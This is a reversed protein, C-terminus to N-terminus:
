AMKFQGEVPLEGDQVDLRNRNPKAYEPREAKPHEPPKPPPVYPKIPSPKEILPMNEDRGSGSGPITSAVPLMRRGNKDVPSTIRNPANLREQVQARLRAVDPRPDDARRVPAKSHVIEGSVNVNHEVREEYGPHLRLIMAKINSPLEERRMVPILKGHEDRLYKDDRGFLNRVDEMPIHELEPDILYVPQMTVPHLVQKEVGSILQTRLLGEISMVNESRARSCFNHWFDDCERWHLWFISSRDGQREAKMSQARWNFATGESANCAIKMAKSWQPVERLTELVRILNKTTLKSM